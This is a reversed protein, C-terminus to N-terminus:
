EKERQTSKVSTLSCIGYAAVSICPQLHPLVQKVWLEAPLYLKRVCVRWLSNVSDLTNTIKTSYNWFVGGTIECLASIGFVARCKAFVMCLKTTTQLADASYCFMVGVLFALQM